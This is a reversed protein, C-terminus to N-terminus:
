NYTNKNIQRMANGCDIASRKLAAREPSSWQNGPIDASEFAKVKGLFRTAEQKAEEIRKQLTPKDM